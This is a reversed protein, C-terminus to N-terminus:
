LIVKTKMLIILLQNKIFKDGVFNLTKNPEENEKDKGTELM